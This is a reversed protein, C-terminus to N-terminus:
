SAACSYMTMLALFVIAITTGVTNMTIFLPFHTDSLESYKKPLDDRIDEVDDPKFIEKQRSNWQQVRERVHQPAEPSASLLHLLSMYEEEVQEALLRSRTVFLQRPRPGGYGQDQWAREIGFMKFVIM